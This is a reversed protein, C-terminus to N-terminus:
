GCVVVVAGPCEQGGKRGRVKNSAERVNAKELEEKAATITAMHDEMKYYSELTKGIFVESTGGVFSKSGTFPDTHILQPFSHVVASSIELFQTLCATKSVM